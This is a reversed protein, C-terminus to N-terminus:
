PVKRGCKRYDVKGMGRRMGQRDRYGSEM